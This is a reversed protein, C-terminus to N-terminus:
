RMAELSYGAKSSDNHDVRMLASRQSIRVLYSSNHPEKKCKAQPELLSASIATKESGSKTGRVTKVTKMKGNQEM